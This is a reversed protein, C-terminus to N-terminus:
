RVALGLGIGHLASRPVACHKSLEAERLRLHQTPVKFGIKEVRDGHGFLYPHDLHLLTYQGPILTCERGFQAVSLHGSQVLLYIYSNSPARSIHYSTRRAYECDAAVETLDAYGIARRCIRASFTEKEGIDIDLSTYVSRIIAQWGARRNGVLESSSYISISM